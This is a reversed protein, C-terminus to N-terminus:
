GTPPKNEDKRPLHRSLIFHEFLYQSEDNNLTYEFYSELIEQLQKGSDITIIEKDEKKIIHFASNRLFYVRDNFIRSVFLNNVFNAKPHKHSYFHGMEFDPEFSEQLEFSYYTFTHEKFLEILFYTGEKQIVEYHHGRNSPSNKENVAVPLHPCNPGFGVDVLYTEGEWELLTVRHTRPVQIDRNNLVRGLVSIVKFGLASLVEYFIKNHEFCYGGKRNEIVRKFMLEDELSLDKELLVNVSSFIFLELHKEQLQQIFDLDMKSRDIDLYDLYSQIWGPM